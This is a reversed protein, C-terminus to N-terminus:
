TPVRVSYQILINFCKQIHEPNGRINFFPMVEGGLEKSPMTNCILMLDCTLPKEHIKQLTVTMRRKSYFGVMNIIKTAAAPIPIPSKYAEQWLRLLYELLNLSEENTARSLVDNLEKISTTNGEFHIDLPNNSAQERKKIENILNEM